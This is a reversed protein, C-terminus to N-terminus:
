LGVEINEDGEFVFLCDREPILTEEGGLVCSLQKGQTHTDTAGQFIAVRDGPELETPVFLKKYQKGPGIALVKATRIPQRHNDTLIIRGGAAKEKRPELQLHVLDNLPRLKM